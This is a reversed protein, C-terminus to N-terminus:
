GKQSDKKNRRGLKAFVESVTSIRSEGNFNKM